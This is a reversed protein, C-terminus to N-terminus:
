DLFPYQKEHILRSINSQSVQFAKGLERQFYMGTDYLNRIKLVQSETLKAQSPPPYHRGKVMADRNNDRSTGLWLHNPNVCRRNDCKHLVCLGNPIPGHVLEYAVRHAGHTPNGFAGYGNPFIAGIWNWCNTGKDVKSWFQTKRDGKKRGM